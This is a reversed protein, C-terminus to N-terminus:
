INMKYGFKNLVFKINFKSIWKINIVTDTYTDMLLSHIRFLKLVIQESIMGNVARSPIWCFGGHGPLPVV